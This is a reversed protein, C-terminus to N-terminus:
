NNYFRCTCIINKYIKGKLSFDIKKGRYFLLKFDIDPIMFGYAIPSVIQITNYDIHGIGLIYDIEGDIIIIQNITDGNSLLSLVIVHKKDTMINFVKILDKLIIYKNFKYLTYIPKENEPIEIITNINIEGNKILKNEIELKNLDDYTTDDLSM